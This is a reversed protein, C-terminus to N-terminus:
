ANLWKILEPLMNLEFTGQKPDSSDSFMVFKAKDGYFLLEISKDKNRLDIMIEGRPGPAVHFAKQGFSQLLKLLYSALM